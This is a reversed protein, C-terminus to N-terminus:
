GFTLAHPSDIYVGDFIDIHLRSMNANLCRNIESGINAWDSALLSPSVIVGNCGEKGKRDNDNGGGGRLSAISQFVDKTAPGLKTYIEKYLKDYTEAMEKMPEVRKSTRVMNKVAM